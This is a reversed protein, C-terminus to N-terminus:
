EEGGDQGGDANEYEIQYTSSVSLITIPWPQTHTLLIRGDRNNVGALLRKADTAGLVVTGDASVKVPVHVHASVCALRSGNEPAAYPRVDFPSANIVRIESETADKVEFQATAGRQPEPRVTVFESEIAYGCAFTGNGLDVSVEGQGALDASSEVHLGDLVVQAAATAEESDNRVKWMQYAGDKEVLIMMETTGEVICKPSVIEKAKWGGSLVQRSWAVLEQERMYVLTAITGDALVCEVISDPHQKYAMSVVPNARFLSQALVSLDVTQYSDSAYDYNISRICRGGREGFLIENGIQLPELTRSTGIASQLKASVTKFTLANGSVPAVQWEGGDCFLILDRGMVVHNIDPFETAAISVELADDERISKHATFNYLDAVRSFWLTSPYNNTSAFVLRQDYVGVCGPYDNTGGFHPDLSDDPPTVSMDPNIYDDQFMISGSAYSKMYFHAAHIVGDEGPWDSYVSKTFRFRAKVVKHRRLLSFDGSSGSPRTATVTVDDLWYATKQLTFTVSTATLSAVNSTYTKGLRVLKWKGSDTDFSVEGGNGDSFTWSSAFDFDIRRTHANFYADQTGKGVLYALVADGNPATVTSRQLATWDDYIGQYNSGFFYDRTNSSFSVKTFCSLVAGDDLTIDCTCQPASVLLYSVDNAADYLRADLMLCVRNFQIGGSSEFDFVIGDAKRSKTCVIALDGTASSAFTDRGKAVIRRLIDGKAWGKSTEFDSTNALAFSKTNPTYLRYTDIRGNVTGVLGQDNTTGILGFGNGNDKYVNFYDPDSDNAGRSFSLNVVASNQWPMDYTVSVIPSPRSERGDRVYTCCYRVERVTVPSSTAAASSASGNTSVTKSSCGTQKGESDTTVTKETSTAETFSMVSVTTLKRGEEADKRETTVTYTIAHSSSSDSGTSGTGSSGASVVTGKAKCAEVFGSLKEKQASSLWSPAGASTFESPWDTEVPDQGEMVAGTITPPFFDSNDLELEEFTPYGDCDFVIKAPPYSRHAVFLTDGSQRICLEALDDDAYPVAIRYPIRDWDTGTWRYDAEGDLKVGFRGDADPSAENVVSRTEGDQVVQYVLAELTNADARRPQSCIADSRTFSARRIQGDKQYVSYAGTNPNLAGFFYSGNPASFLGGNIQVHYVDIMVAVDTLWQNYTASWVQNTAASDTHFEGGNVILLATQQTANIIRGTSGYEYKPKAVVFDFLGGNITVVSSGDMTIVSSGDWAHFTGCQITLRASEGVLIIQGWWGYTQWEMQAKITCTSDYRLGLAKSNGGSAVFRAGRRSSVVTLDVGGTASFVAWRSTNVTYGYLDVTVRMRNRTATVVKGGISFTVEKTGRVNRENTYTVSQEYYLRGNRTVSWWGSSYASGVLEMTGNGGDSFTWATASASARSATVVAGDLLFDVSTANSASGGNCSTMHLATTGRTLKWRANSGSATFVPTGAVGDSFSWARSRLENVYDGDAMRRWYKGEFTAFGSSASFSTARVETGDAKTMVQEGDSNQWIEVSCDLVPSNNLSDGYYYWRGDGIVALNSHFRITDGDSALDCAHQLTHCRTSVYDGNSVTHILEVPWTGSSMVDKAVYVTKRGEQDVATYPPVSRLHRGDVTLVGERSATFCVGGSLLVYRGDDGNNVPVLRMTQPEIPNGSADTGLLNALDAALDTGRRKSICGQRRVLFNKLETAGKFYKDLDQRGMVDRDLIGATFAHQTNKWLAM